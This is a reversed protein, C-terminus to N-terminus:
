DVARGVLDFNGDAPGFDNGALDVLVAFHGYHDFHVFHGFHAFHVSHDFHVFDHLWSYLQHFNRFWWFAQM